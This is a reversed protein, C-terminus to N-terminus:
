QVRSELVGDFASCYSWIPASRTSPPRLTECNEVRCTVLLSIFSSTGEGEGERGAGGAGGRETALQSQGSSPKRRTQIVAHHTTKGSSPYIPAPDGVALYLNDVAGKGRRRRRPPGDGVDCTVNINRGNVRLQTCSMYIAYSTSDSIFVFLCCLKTVQARVSANCILHSM